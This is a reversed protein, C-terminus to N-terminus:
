ARVKVSGRVAKPFVTLVERAGPLASDLTLSRKNRNWQLFAAGNDGKPGTVYQFRDDGGGVREVRIVDAGLDGLMAACMPGAIFRGSDVVRVGELLVCGDGM